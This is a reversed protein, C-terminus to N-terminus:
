ISETFSDTTLFDLFSSFIMFVRTHIAPKTTVMTAMATNSAPDGL